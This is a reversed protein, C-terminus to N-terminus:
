NRIEREVDKLVETIDRLATTQSALTLELRDSRAREEVRLAERYEIQSKADAREKAIDEDRKKDRADVSRGSRLQDTVILGIFGVLMGIPLGFETILAGLDPM